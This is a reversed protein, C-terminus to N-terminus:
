EMYKSTIKCWFYVYVMSLYSTRAPMRSVCFICVFYVALMGTSPKDDHSCETLDNRDAEVSSVGVICLM